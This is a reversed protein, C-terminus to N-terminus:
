APLWVTFTTGEGVRSHVEIHGDHEEVITKTVHLGLGLGDPRSSRFPRFITALRDDDIGVGEDRVILQVGLPDQTRNTCLYLKGGDPMADIANLLLNLVIQKIRGPAAHILPLNTGEDWTVDVGRDRCTRENLIVVESVLANIDTPERDESSSPRQLDRLRGIISAMRRVEGRAVDLYQRIDGGEQLIESALGLCGLIGQLPNNLEHALSAALRGTVALKEAEILADQTVKEESVDQIIAVIYSARRVSKAVRTASLRAHLTSGDKRVYRKFISYNSLQGQALSELQEDSTGLDEPHTIDRFSSGVLEQESYGLMHQLAPNAALLVGKTNALSMGFPAHEFITAFREQSSHLSETRRQIREELDDTHHRALDRLQSTHVGISLQDAIERAMEM